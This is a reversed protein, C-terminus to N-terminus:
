FKLSTTLRVTTGPYPSVTLRSAPQWGFKRNTLNDVNLNFDYREIRYNAGVNFVHWAATFFGPQAPVRPQGAVAPALGTITEAAAQGFYAVAGFVSLNKLAGDTFRYNALANAMKDPVNRVRREFADRYEMSTYSVITSLNKTVGGVLNFEYGKSKNNTLINGAAGPNINALPNPSTVNTQSMQFHTATFSLRQELWETKVGIEHQRGESWLPVSVGNGPNFTTLVANTSYTYYLSVNKMPKVLASGIYSDKKDNLVAPASALANTIPNLSYQQSRVWVRTAGGTIFARDDFFGTKLLAYANKQTAEAVSRNTFTFTNIDPRPADQGDGTLLNVNPMPATGTRTPFNHNHQYAWGAVAQLSLPGPHFNAAYDNQFQHM